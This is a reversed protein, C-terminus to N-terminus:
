VDLFDSKEINNLRNELELLKEEIITKEHYTHCIIVKEVNKNNQINVFYDQANFSILDKLDINYLESLSSLKKLSIDIENRKIKGYGQPTIKLFEAVTEQKFGKLERIKRLNEGINM